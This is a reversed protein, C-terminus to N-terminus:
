AWILGQSRSCMLRAVYMTGRSLVLGRREDIVTYYTNDWVHFFGNTSQYIRSLIDIRWLLSLLKKHVFTSMGCFIFPRWFRLFFFCKFFEFTYKGYSLWPGPGRGTKTGKGSGDAGLFVCFTNLSFSCVTGYNCKGLKVHHCLWLRRSGQSLCLDVMHQKRQVTSPTWTRQHQLFFLPFYPHHHFLPPQRPFSRTTQPSPLIRYQKSFSFFLLRTTVITLQM